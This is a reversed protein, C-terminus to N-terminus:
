HMGRETAGDGLQALVAKANHKAVVHLLYLHQRVDAPLLSPLIRGTNDGPIPADLLWAITPAVDVQAVTPGNGNSPIHSFPQLGM